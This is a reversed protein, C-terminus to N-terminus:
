RRAAESGASGSGSSIMNRPVRSVCPRVLAHRQAIELVPPGGCPREGPHREEEVAGEVDPVLPQSGVLNRAAVNGRIEESHKAHRGDEAPVEGPPLSVQCM